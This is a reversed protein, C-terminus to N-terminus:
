ALSKKFWAVCRKWGDQAAAANYSPRYDAHFGHGAGPYIMMDVNQNHHKLMEIFKKADEPSPNKDQEGYLGLFPIKIDKAADFGTVPGSATQYARGPPGYWAVAAKM